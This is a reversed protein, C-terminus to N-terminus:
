KKEEAQIARALGRRIAPSLVFIASIDNLALYLPGVTIGLVDPDFWSRDLNLSDVFGYRNWIKSSWKGSAWAEMEPLVEPTFNFSAGACGLCVTGNHALPSFARYGDPSGSASLGWFGERYTQYRTSTQISTQRNHVTAKVSLDFYRSLAPIGRFNIFVQSYQHIFLPLGESTAQGVKTMWASLPLPKDPHGLGLVLLILHEAYSDWQWPLYGLEPMWGMSLSNKNPKAGGDTLMDIFDVRRYIKETWEAVATNPFIQAATLAGALFLATDITSVECNRFREGTEWDVFHYLWGRYHPLREYIFELSRTIRTQAELRNMRGVQAAEAMVALGFGTSALSAARYIGRNPTPHSALARDRTLGTVPHTEELFYALSRQSLDERFGSGLAFSYFLTLFLGLRFFM